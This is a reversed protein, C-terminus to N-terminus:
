PRGEPRSVLLIRAADGAVLQLAGPAPRDLRAEAIMMRSAADIEPSVKEVTGELSLRRAGVVVRVPPGTRIDAAGEPPFAFRVFLDGDGLLRVLPTSPTVNAGPEVYRAAVVGAFPARIQLDAGARRLKELRARREAVDARIADLRAGSLKQQYGATALDERTVLAEASLSQKRLLREEAEAREISARELEVEGAKLAAEAIAVDFRLSPVDLTAIVADAEVRDGLRVRISAVRGELRPALDASARALIVGPFGRERAPAGEASTALHALRHA